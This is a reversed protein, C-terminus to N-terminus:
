VGGAPQAHVHASKMGFGLLSAIHPKHISKALMKGSPNSPESTPARMRNWQPWYSQRKHKM